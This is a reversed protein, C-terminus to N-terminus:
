WVSVSLNGLRLKDGSRLPFMQYPVLRQENVFTGNTSGMDKIYYQGEIAVVSAHIRSIGLELGHIPTLDIDPSDGGLDKRGIRVTDDINVRFANEFGPIFLKLGLSGTQKPKLDLSDIISSFPPLPATAGFNLRNDDAMRNRELYRSNM